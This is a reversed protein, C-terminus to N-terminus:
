FLLLKDILRNKKNTIEYRKVPHVSKFLEKFAPGEQRTENLNPRTRSGSPESAEKLTCEIVLVSELLCCAIVLFPM